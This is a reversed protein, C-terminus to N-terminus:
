VWGRARYLATALLEYATAEFLALGEAPSNMRHTSPWESPAAHTRVGLRRFVQQARRMHVSNTVLLASEWGNRKMLDAVFLGNEHTRRARDEVLIAAAPVGMEAAIRAMVAGESVGPADPHVGGTVILRPAYRDRFLRVGHRVRQLADPPLEDPWRVGGGLVVIADATRPREGISWARAVGNPLPTVCALLLVACTQGFM